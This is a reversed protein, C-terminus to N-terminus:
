DVRGFSRAVGPLGNSVVARKPPVWGIFVSLGDQEKTV